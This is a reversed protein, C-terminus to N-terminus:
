NLGSRRLGEKFLISYKEDTSQLLPEIKKITFEPNINLLKEIYEKGLSIDGSHVYSSAVIAYAFTFYPNERISKKSWNIAQRYDGAAFHVLAIAGYCSYIEPDHPNLSKAEEINSLAQEFNGGMAYLQGLYRYAIAYSPNIEVAKKFYFISDERKGEILAGLGAAFNTKSDKIDLHMCKAIGTQIRKIAEPINQEFQEVIQLYSALVKGYWALIISEDLQIAKEFEVLAALINEETKKSLLYLGKVSHSWANFLFNIRTTVRKGEAEILEPSISAVVKRSIEDQEKFIDEWSCDICKSWLNLGNDTEILHFTIRVLNKVVRVSGSILYNVGLKNYLDNPTYDILNYKMTSSFSKVPFWKWLSLRTILDEAMGRSIIHLEMENGVVEFPLVALSPRNVKQMVKLKMITSDDHNKNEVVTKFIGVAETRNTVDLIKLISAVHIKVTNASISLQNSIEKNTFGKSILNFIELKRPTLKSLESIENVQFM